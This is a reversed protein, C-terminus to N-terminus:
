GETGNEILKNTWKQEKGSALDAILIELDTQKSIVDATKLMNKYKGRLMEILEKAIIAYEIETGEGVIEDALQQDALILVDTVLMGIGPMGILKIARKIDAQRNM